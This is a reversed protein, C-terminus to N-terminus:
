STAWQNYNYKEAFVEVEQDALEKSYYWGRVVFRKVKDHDEEVINPSGASWRMAWIKHVAVEYIVIWLPCLINEYIPRVTFNGEQRFTCGDPLKEIIQQIEYTAHDPRQYYAEFGTTSTVLYGLLYPSM